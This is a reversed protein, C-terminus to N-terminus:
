TPSELYVPKDNAYPKGDMYQIESKMGHHYIRTKIKQDKHQVGVSSGLARPTWNFEGGVSNNTDRLSPAWARESHTPESQPQKETVNDPDAVPPRPPVQLTRCHLCCPLQLRFGRFSPPLHLDVDEDTSDSLLRDLPLALHTMEDTHFRWAASWSFGSASNAKGEYMGCMTRVNAPILDSKWKAQPRSSNM